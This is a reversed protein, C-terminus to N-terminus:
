DRKPLAVSKRQRLMMMAALGMGGLALTSPEPVPGAQIGVGATNQYAWDVLTLNESGPTPDDIFHLWGYSTGGALSLEIGVYGDTTSTNSWDGTVNGTDGDEYMYARGAPIAPYTAAYSADIMTGSSTVPLGHSAYALLSVIGSQPNPAGNGPAGTRADVYPKQASGEYGFTFDPTGDGTMDVQQRYLTGSYTQQLNLQGSYVVQSQAIGAALSSTSVFAITKKANMLKIKLNGCKCIM